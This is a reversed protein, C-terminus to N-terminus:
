RTPKSDVTEPEAQDHIAIDEPSILVVRHHEDDWTAVPEGVHRHNRIAASLAHGWAEAIEEDTADLRALIGRGDPNM